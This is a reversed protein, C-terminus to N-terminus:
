KCYYLSIKVAYLRLSHLGIMVNTEKRYLVLIQSCRSYMYLHRILLVVAIQLPVTAYKSYVHSLKIPFAKLGRLKHTMLLSTFKAKFDSCIHIYYHAVESQCRLWNMFHCTVLSEYYHM